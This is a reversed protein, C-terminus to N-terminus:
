LGLADLYRRFRPDRAIADTIPNNHFYLMEEAKIAVGQEIFDFARDINGLAVYVSAVLDFHPRLMPDLRELYDDVIQTAEAQRGALALATALRLLIQPTGTSALPKLMEICADIEGLGLRCQAMTVVVQPSQVGMAAVRACLDLAQDFRRAHTYRLAAMLMAYTSGPAAALHQESLAIAEKFRRRSALYMAYSAYAYEYDPAMELLQIYKAEVGPDWAFWFDLNASLELAPHSHPDIALAREAARRARAHTGARDAYNAGMAAHAWGLGVHAQVFEPDIAIAREYHEIIAPHEQPAPMRELQQRALLFHEYAELSSTPARALKTENRKAFTGRLVDAIHEAVDLQIDLLNEMTLARDYTEAWLHSDDRGSILQATVRIRDGAFRVSGELVSDVRFLEAIEPIPKNTGRFPMVTTRSTVRLSRVKALQTIIEEHLGDVVHVQDNGASLDAFPLVAIARLESASGPTQSVDDTGVVVPLGLRYGRGRVTLVYDGEAGAAVLADRVLKVRQVVTEDSVVAGEWVERMLTDASVVNPAHSALCALLRFSLKSLPVEAGSLSALQTGTDLVVEGFRLETPTTHHAM